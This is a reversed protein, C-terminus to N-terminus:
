SFQPFVSRNRCTPFAGKLASLGQPSAAFRIGLLSTMAPTTIVPTPSMRRPYRSGTILTSKKPGDASPVPPPNAPPAADNVRVPTMVPLKVPPNVVDKPRPAAAPVVENTDTAVMTTNTAVTTPSSSVMAPENAAPFAIGVTAPGAGAAM